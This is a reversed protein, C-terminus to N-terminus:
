SRAKGRSAAAASPPNRLLELIQGLKVEVADLRSALDDGEYVNLHQNVMTSIGDLYQIASVEFPQDKTPARSKKVTKKM